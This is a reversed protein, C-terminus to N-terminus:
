ASTRRVPTLKQCQREFFFPLHIESDGRDLLPGCFLFSICSKRLDISVSDSCTAHVILDLIRPVGIQATEINGSLNIKRGEFDRNAKLM